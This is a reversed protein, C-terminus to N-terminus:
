LGTLENSGLSGLLVAGPPPGTTPTRSKQFSVIKVPFSYNMLWNNTQDTM